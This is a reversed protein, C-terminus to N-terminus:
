GLGFVKKNPARGNSHESSSTIASIGNDSDYLNTNADTLTILLAPIHDCIADLIAFIERWFGFKGPILHSFEVNKGHM